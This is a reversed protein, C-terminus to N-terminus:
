AAAHLVKVLEEKTVGLETLEADTLPAITHLAAQAVATAYAAAPCRVLKGFSTHDGANTIHRRGDVASGNVLARGARLTLSSPM